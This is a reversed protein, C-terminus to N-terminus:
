VDILEPYDILVDAFSEYEKIVKHKFDQGSLLHLTLPRVYEGKVIDSLNTIDYYSTSGEQFIIDYVSNATKYWKTSVKISGFGNCTSCARPIGSSYDIPTSGRCKPCITFEEKKM